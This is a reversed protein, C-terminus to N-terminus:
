LLCCEKAQGRTAPACPHLPNLWTMPRQLIMSIRNDRLASWERESRGILVTKSASRARRARRAQWFAWPRLHSERSAAARNGVLAPTEGQAIDLDLSRVAVHGDFSVSVKDIM